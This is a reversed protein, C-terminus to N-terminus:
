PFSGGSYRCLRRGEPDGGGAHATAVTGDAGTQRHSTTRDQLRPDCFTGDRRREIRDAGRRCSSPPAANDLPIPIEGRIEAEIGAFIAAPARNGLQFVMRCYAPLAAVVAGAGGTAGDAAHLIKPGIGRLAGAPTTPFTRPSPKPLNALRMTSRRVVTPPGVAAHRRSRPPNLGCSINPMSRIPPRAALRRNRDGVIKLPRVARPPRPAPRRLRNSRSPAISNLQSAFMNKDPRSRLM